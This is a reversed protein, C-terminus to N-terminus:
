QSERIVKAGPPGARLGVMIGDQLLHQLSRELYESPLGKFYQPILCIQITFKVVAERFVIQLRLQLQENVM